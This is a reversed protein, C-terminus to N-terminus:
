YNHKHVREILACEIVGDMQVRYLGRYAKSLRTSRYGKWEGKLLEDHYGPIKRTEELGIAHVTGVWGMLKRVIHIPCKKLDQRARRSLVVTNIVFCTYGRSPLVTLGIPNCDNFGSSYM